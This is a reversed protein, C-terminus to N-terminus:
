VTIKGSTERPTPLSSEVNSLRSCGLRRGGLTDTARTVMLKALRDFPVRRVLLGVTRGYLCLNGKVQSGVPGCAELVEPTEPWAANTRTLHQQIHLKM